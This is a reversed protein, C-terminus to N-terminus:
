LTYSISAYIVSHKGYKELAADLFAAVAEPCADEDCGVTKKASPMYGLPGLVFLPRPEIWRKWAKIAENEIYQSTNLIVGDCESFLRPTM